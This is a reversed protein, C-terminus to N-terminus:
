MELCVWLLILMEYERPVQGKKSCVPMLREVHAIRQQKSAEFFNRLHLLSLCVLTGREREEQQALKKNDCRMQGYECM